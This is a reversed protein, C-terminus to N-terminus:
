KLQFVIEDLLSYKQTNKAPTSSSNRLKYNDYEEGNRKCFCHCATLWISDWNDSNEYSLKKVFYALEHQRGIVKIKETELKEENKFLKRFHVLKTEPHFLECKILRELLDKLPSIEYKHKTSFGYKYPETKKFYELWDELWKIPNGQSLKKVTNEAAKNDTKPLEYLVDNLDRPTYINILRLCNKFIENKYSRRVPINNIFKFIEIQHKGLNIEILKTELEKLIEKKNNADKIVAILEKMKKQDNAIIKMKKKLPSSSM